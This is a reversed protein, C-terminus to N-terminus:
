FGSYKSDAIKFNRFTIDGLIEGLVGDGNNKWTIFNEFIAEYSLNDSFPDAL